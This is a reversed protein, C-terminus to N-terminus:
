NIHLQTFLSINEADLFQILTNPFFGFYLLILSLFFLSYLDVVSIESFNKLYPTIPGFMLKNYFWISYAATLIIQPATIIALATNSSIMASIVLFEGIFASTGPMAINGLIFIFLFLNLMPMMNSLGGYYGIHRTGYQVYLEGACLFLAASTIGHSLMSFIAGSFGLTNQLFLGIIALNMHAISSYAVIKKIDNQCLALGSAYLISLVCMLIALPRFTEFGTEFVNINSRLIGYGGLKLLIGALLISGATSAEVHAEPLWSHFPFVPVKVAFGLFLGLWIFKEEISEFQYLKIIAIDTSGTEIYIYLICTLILFSGFLTFLVFKYTAFIKRPRSGWIGVILLMPILVAEFAIYFLLIDRLMFTLTLTFQLIGLLSFFFRERMLSSPNHLGAAIMLVLGNTLTIFAISIRDLYLIVPIGLTESIQIPICISLEKDFFMELALDLSFVFCFCMLFLGIWSIPSGLADRIAKQALDSKVPKWWILNPTKYTGHKWFLSYAIMCVSVFPIGLLMM